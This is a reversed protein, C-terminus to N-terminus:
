SAGRYLSVRARCNRLRRSLSARAWTPQARHGLRRPEVTGSCNRTVQSWTPTVTVTVTVRHSGAQTVRLPSAMITHRCGARSSSGRGDEEALRRLRAEM